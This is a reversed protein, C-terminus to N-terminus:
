KYILLIIGLFKRIRFYIILVIKDEKRYIKLIKIKVRLLKRRKLIM